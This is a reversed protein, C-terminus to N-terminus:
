SSAFGGREPVTSKIHKHTNTRREPPAIFLPLSPTSSSIPRTTQLKNRGIAAQLPLDLQNTRMARPRQTAAPSIRSACQSRPLTSHNHLRCRMRRGPSRERIASPAALARGIPGDLRKLACSQLWWGPCSSADPLCWKM